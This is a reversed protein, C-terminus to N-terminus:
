SNTRLETLSAISDSIQKHNAEQTNSMRLMESEQATVKGALEEMVVQIYGIRPDSVLGDAPNSGGVAASVATVRTAMESISIGKRGMEAARVAKLLLPHDKCLTNCDAQYPM